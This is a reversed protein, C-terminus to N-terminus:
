NSQEQMILKCVGASFIQSDKKGDPFVPKYLVTKDSILKNLTVNHCM